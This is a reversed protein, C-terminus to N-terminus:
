FSCNMVWFVDTGWFLTVARAEIWENQLQRASSPVMDRNLLGHSNGPVTPPELADEEEVRTGKEDQFTFGISSRRRYREAEAGRAIDRRV